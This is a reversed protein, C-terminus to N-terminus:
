RFPKLARSAAKRGFRVVDQLRARIRDSSTAHVSWSPNGLFSDCADYFDVSLPDIRFRHTMSGRQHALYPAGNWQFEDHYPNIGKLAKAETSTPKVIDLAFYPIKRDDLYSPIQWGTDKVVFFGIPLNYLKSLGEHTVEIFNTKDPRVQLASFDHFPSLAMWTTTPKKKYQQYQTDGSSFGGIDELRTGVIGYSRKEIMAEVLPRDWNEMLLVVDSDAIINIERPVISQIAREIAQAHGWSGRGYPLETISFASNDRRLILASHRDLCYVHFRASNKASTLAAYNARMYDFYRLSNHSVTVHVNLNV